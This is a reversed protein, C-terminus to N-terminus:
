REKSQTMRLNRYGDVRFHWAPPVFTTSTQEPLLAPGVGFAGPQLEHRPIVPWSLSEGNYIGPIEQYEETRVEREEPFVEPMPEKQVEGIGRVKLNVIEVPRHDHRFKYREAHRRHFAELMDQQWTIELEYSQGEYRMDLSRLFTMDRSEIGQSRLDQAVEDEMAQLTSEVRSWDLDPSRHFRTRVRDRVVDARLLGMASFVGAQPPIIVEPIGLSDALECGHLPGAGGFAVLSARGPDYGQEVSIVRIAQEMKANALALIAETLEEGSVDLEGSFDEVIERTRQVNLRIEGGFTMDPALRGALLNADTVTVGSGGKDYCIPGPVAGASEPGVQLVGAADRYALSGGGSGVTHIDIV